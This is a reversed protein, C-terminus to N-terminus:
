CVKLLARSCKAQLQYGPDCETECCEGTDSHCLCRGKGDSKL